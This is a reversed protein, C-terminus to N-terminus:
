KSKQFQTKFLKHYLGKQALLQTHSGIEKIVGNDLVIIKHAHIVTSLRHAIVFTTRNKMLRELADQVLKESKSDLSSTAEDLILIKPDKLIARAISIRQRQGGSLKQGRDGIKTFLQEQKKEIFEWANAKIAAQLVEENTATLKGYRINELITGRFLVSEQPVLGIYSRLVSLDIHCLDMGDLLIRGQTPDYFRPILNVFTTKGAGSLGVIAIIEGEEVTLSIDKLVDPQGDYYAFSVHEFSLTGKVHAPKLPNLRNQISSPTDLIEFIRDTAALSQQTTTFVKSLMSVPEVLLFLGVFFSGLKPGTFAGSAVEYSGYWVILTFIFFQLFAILPELTSSIRVSKMMSIFGRHNEKEFIGMEYSEATYAKIIQINSIMEQVIHTIDANKQQIQRSIRKIKEGFYSVLYTFIPIGILSFLSLKWNIVFMYGFVGIFRLTQPIVEQFNLILADKVRDVDTFFRSMIDGTKSKQYFDLSLDQLKQYLEMRLDVIVSYSVNAMIYIQGYKTICYLIYLGIADLIYNHVLVTNKTSLVKFIDQVLPLFYVNTAAFLIALITSFFLKLRYPKLKSLLRLYDKM